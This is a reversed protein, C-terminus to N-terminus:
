TLELEYKVKEFILNHGETNPHVGDELKDKWEDKNVENRFDLFNVSEEKCVEKKIGEYKELINDDIKGEMCNAHMMNQDIYGESLVITKGANEKSIELIQKL